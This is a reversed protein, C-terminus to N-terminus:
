FEVVENNNTKIGPYNDKEWGNHCDEMHVALRKLVTEQEEENLYSLYNDVFHKYNGRVLEVPIDLFGNHFKCHISNILPVYGIHNSFHYEIMDLAIDFSSFKINEQIRKNIIAEALSYLSPIHHHIEVDCAEDSELTIACNEVGLIDKIYNRWLRYEASGRVLKECMKVFKKFEAETEFSGIRLPLNLGGEVSLELKEEDATIPDEFINNAVFANM